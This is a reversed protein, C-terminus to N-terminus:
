LSTKISVKYRYVSAFEATKDVYYDEKVDDSLLIYDSTLVTQNDIETIDNYTAREVKYVPYDQLLASKIENTLGNWTIMLDKDTITEAYKNTMEVQGGTVNYEIIKNSVVWESDEYTKLKIRFYYNKNYDLGTITIPDTNTVTSITDWDTNQM